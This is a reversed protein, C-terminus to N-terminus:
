GNFSKSSTGKRNTAEAPHMFKVYGLVLSVILGIAVVVFRFKDDQAQFGRVLSYVLTLVGGLLLGDAVFSMRRMITLSLGVIIVAAALAISSVYKNYEAYNIQYENSQKAFDAAEQQQQETPITGPATPVPRFPFVPQKPSPYFAAIGVGVFTAILIGLFTTYAYKLYLM